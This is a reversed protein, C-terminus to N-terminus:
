YRGYRKFKNCVVRYARDTLVDNEVTVSFLGCTAERNKNQSEILQDVMSVDIRFATFTM